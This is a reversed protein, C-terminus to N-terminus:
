LQFYITLTYINISQHSKLTGRREPLQVTTTQNENRFLNGRGGFGGVWMLQAYCWLLSRQSEKKEPAGHFNSNALSNRM